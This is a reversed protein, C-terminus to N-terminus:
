EREREREGFLLVHLVRERERRKGQIRWEDSEFSLHMFAFLSTMMWDEITPIYLCSESGLNGKSEHLFLLGIESM